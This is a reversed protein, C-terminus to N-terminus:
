YPWTLVSVIAFVAWAPHKARSGIISVIFSALFTLSLAKLVLTQEVSLEAFGAYYFLIFSIGLGLVGTVHWTFRLTSKTRQVSGRVAPLGEAKQMKHLPIMILIEGIVSHAVALLATLLGASFLYTNM